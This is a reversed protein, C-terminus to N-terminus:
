VSSADTGNPATDNGALGVGSFSPMEPERSDGGGWGGDDPDGFPRGPYFPIQGADSNIADIIDVLLTTLIVETSGERGTDLVANLLKSAKDLLSCGFLKLNMSREHVLEVFANYRGVLDHPLPSIKEASVMKGTDTDRYVAFQEPGDDTKVSVITRVVNQGVM